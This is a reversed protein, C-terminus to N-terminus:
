IWFIKGSKNLKTAWLKANVDLKLIEKEKQKITHSSFFVGRVRKRKNKRKEQKEKNREAIEKKEEETLEIKEPPPLVNPDLHNGSDQELDDQFTNTITNQQNFSNM